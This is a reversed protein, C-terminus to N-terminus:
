ISERYQKPTKGTVNKFVTNFRSPTSFGCSSSIRYIKYSTTELLKKATEVKQSIIYENITMGMEKKFIRCLYVKHVNVFSAISDLPITNQNTNKDIFDIVNKVIISNPRTKQRNNCHYEINQILLNYWNIAENITEFTNIKELPIYDCNFIQSNTLNNKNAFLMITELLFSHIYYLYHLQAFGHIDEKFINKLQHKIKDFNKDNLTEKIDNLQRQTEEPNTKKLRQFFTNHLITKNHGTYIRFCLLDIAQKTRNCILELNNFKNSVTITFSHSIHRSIESRIRNSLITCENIFQMQSLANTVAVLAVFKDNGAYICEGGFLANITAQITRNIERIENQKLLNNNVLHTYQDLSICTVVYSQACLNLNNNEIITQIQIASLNEFFLKELSDVDRVTTKKSPSNNVALTTTSERLKEEARSLVAYLDDKAIVGKILYDTVGMRIAKQAYTFDEYCSIIIFEQKKNKSKIQEILQLGNMVPMQIDTIILDPKVIDYQNIADQGHKATASIVFNTKDWDILYKLIERGPKEDDVIMVKYM